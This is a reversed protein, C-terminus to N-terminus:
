FYHETLSTSSIEHIKLMKSAEGVEFIVYFDFFSELEIRLRKRYARNVLDHPPVLGVVNKQCSINKQSPRKLSIIAWITM